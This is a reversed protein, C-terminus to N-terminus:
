RAGEPGRGLSYLYESVARVQQESLNTPPFNGGPEAIGPM